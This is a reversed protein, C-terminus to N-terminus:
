AQRSRRALHVLRAFQGLRRAPIEVRAPAENYTVDRRFGAVARLRSLRNADLTVYRVQKPQIALAYRRTRLGAGLDAGGMSIFPGSLYGLRRRRTPPEWFFVTHGEAVQQYMRLGCESFWQLSNGQHGESKM